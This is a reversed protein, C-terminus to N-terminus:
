SQGEQEVQRSGATSEAVRGTSDLHLNWCNHGKLCNGQVYFKCRNPREYGGGPRIGPKNFGGRANGGGRSGGRTSSGRDANSPPSVGGGTGYVEGGWPSPASNSQYMTGGQGYATPMNSFPQQPQGYATVTGQQVTGQQQGYQPLSQVMRSLNELLQPNIQTAQTTFSQQGPYNQQGYGVGVQGYPMSGFAPQVSPQQVPQTGFGGIGYAMQQQGAGPLQGFSQQPLLNNLIPAHGQSGVADLLIPREAETEPVFVDPELPSPPLTAFYSELNAVERSRQVERETSEAGRRAVM